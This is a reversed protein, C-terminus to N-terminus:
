EVLVGVGFLEVKIKEVVEKEEEYVKELKRNKRSLEYELESIKHNLKEIESEKDVIKKSEKDKFGDRLMVFEGDFEKIEEVKLGIEESNIKADNLLGILDEGSNLDFADRFNSEYEKILGMEKKNSHFVGSLSKFDVLGRLEGFKKVLNQEMDVIERRSKLEKDYDKSKKVDKIFDRCKKIEKKLVVIEESKGDIGKNMESIIEKLGNKKYLNCKVVTMVRQMELFEKNKKANVKLNKFFESIIKKTEELEKGILFTAKQFNMNTKKDFEIFLNNIEEISENADKVDLKKLDKMLKELGVVYYDLNQKVIFKARQEVKKNEINIGKLSEINQTLSNALVWVENKIFEIIEDLKEKGKSDNDKIWNDIGKFGM